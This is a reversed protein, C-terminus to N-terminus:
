PSLKAILDALDEYRYPPRKRVGLVKVTRDDDSVAYIIRWSEIRLRRLDADLGPLDLSRSRDPRPEDALSDVARRVRQRM